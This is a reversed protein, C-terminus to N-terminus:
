QTPKLSNTLKEVNETLKDIGSVIPPNDGHKSDLTDSANKSVIEITSELLMNMLKPDEQNLAEVQKKFNQYSKASAEKHAYEQQLRAAESRRKSAFLALWLVPLALPLKILFNSLVTTVNSIDILKIYFAGIESVLTFGALLVLCVVSGFFLGSYNAIPKDFSEKMTFYATALGASNAGPLLSEIEDNLAKYKEEQREKFEDLQKQRTSIESKLGVSLEGDENEIGFM